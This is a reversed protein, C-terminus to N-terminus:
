WFGETAGVVRSIVSGKQASSRLAEFHTEKSPDRLIHGNVYGNKFYQKKMLIIAADGKPNGVGLIIM